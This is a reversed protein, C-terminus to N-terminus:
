PGLFALAEDAARQRASRHDAGSTTRIPKGNGFKRNNLVWTSWAAQWDVFCDGKKRHHARFHELQHAREGPPWGDEVARSKTGAGFPEPEFDDPLPHAQAKERKTKVTRSPKPASKAPTDPFDQPPASKAPTCIKRPDLIYKASTGNRCDRRFYGNEELWRLAMQVTRESKSTKRCLTAVSPWCLGEDNAHDCLSMLVMKETSGIDLDWSASLLKISMQPAGGM